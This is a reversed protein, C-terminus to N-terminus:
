DAEGKLRRRYATTAKRWLERAKDPNKHKWADYERAKRCRECRDRKPMRGSPPRAIPRYCEDCQGLMGRASAYDVEDPGLFAGLTGGPKVDEAWFRLVELELGRPRDRGVIAAVQGRFPVPKEPAIQRAVPPAWRFCGIAHVAVVIPAPEWGPWSPPQRLLTRIAIVVEGWHSWAYADRKATLRMELVRAAAPGLRKLEIMVRPILSRTESDGALDVVRDTALVDGITM